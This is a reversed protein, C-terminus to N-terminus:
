HCDTESESLRMFVNLIFNFFVFILFAVFLCQAKIETERTTPPQLSFTQSIACVRLDFATKTSM